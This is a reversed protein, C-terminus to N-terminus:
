RKGIKKIEKKISDLQEQISEEIPALNPSDIIKKMREIMENKLKEDSFTEWTVLYHNIAKKVFDARSRFENPHKEKIIDIKKLLQTPLNVATYDYKKTKKV